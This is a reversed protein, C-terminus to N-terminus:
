ARDPGIRRARDHGRPGWSAAQHAHTRTCKTARCFPVNPPRQCRVNTERGARKCAPVSTRGWPASRAPIDCHGEDQSPEADGPGECEAGRCEARARSRTRTYQAGEGPWPTRAGCKGVGKRPGACTRSDRGSSAFKQGRRVDAGWGGPDRTHTGRVRLSTTHEPEPQGNGAREDHVHGDKACESGARQTTQPISRLACTRPRWVDTYFNGERNGGRANEAWTKEESWEAM